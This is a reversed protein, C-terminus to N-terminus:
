TARAVRIKFFKSDAAYAGVTNGWGPYIPTQDEKLAEVEARFEALNGALWTAGARAWPNESDHLAEWCTDRVASRVSPDVPNPAYFLGFIAEGRTLPHTTADHYLDIFIPIDAIQHMTCMLSILENGLYHHKHKPLERMLFPHVWRPPRFPSVMSGFSELVLQPASWDDYVAGSEFAVNEYIWRAVKPSTRMRVYGRIDDQLPKALKRIDKELRHPCRDTKQWRALDRQRGYVDEQYWSWISNPLRTDVVALLEEPSMARLQETRWKWGHKPM